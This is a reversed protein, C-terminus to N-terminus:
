VGSSSGGTSHIRRCGGGSPPMALAIRSPAPASATAIILSSSKQSRSSIVVEGLLARAPTSRAEEHERSPVGGRNGGPRPITTGSSTSCASWAPTSASAAQDRLARARWSAHDVPALLPPGAASAISCSRWAKAAQAAAVPQCGARRRPLRRVRHSEMRRSIVARPRPAAVASSAPRPTACAITSKPSAGAGSSASPMERDM